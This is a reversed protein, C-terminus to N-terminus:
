LLPVSVSVLMLRSLLASSPYLSSIGISLTTNRGLLGCWALCSWTLIVTPPFPLFSSSPLFLLFPSLLPPPPLLLFFFLLPLLLFLGYFVLASTIIASVMTGPLIDTLCCHGSFVIHCLVNVFTDYLKSQTPWGRRPM